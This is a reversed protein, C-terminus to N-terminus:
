PRLNKVDNVMSDFYKSCANFSSLVLRIRCSVRKKKKYIPTKIAALVMYFPTKWFPLFTKKKYGHYSVAYRKKRENINEKQSRIRFYQVTNKVHVIRGMIATQCLVVTISGFFKKDIFTSKLVNSRYIGYFHYQGLWMSLNFRIVPDSIGAMDFFRVERNDKNGNEDKLYIDGHVLAIQDSQMIKLLCKEVYDEDWLDHGGAIMVYDTDVKKILFAFNDVAGINTEQRYALFRRDNATMKSVIDYTNDTSCNDSILVKFNSNTQNSISELTEEIFIGENYVPVIITLNINTNEM